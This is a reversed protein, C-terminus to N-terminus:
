TIVQKTEKGIKYKWNVKKIRDAKRLAGGPNPTLITMTPTTTTAPFDRGQGESTAPPSLPPGLSNPSKKTGINVKSAEGMDNKTGIDVKFWSILM